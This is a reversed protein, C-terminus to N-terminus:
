TLWVTLMVTPALLTAIPISAAPYYAPGFRQTYAVGIGISILGVNFIFVDWLGAAKVLGSTQRLFVSPQTAQNEMALGRHIPLRLVPRGRHHRSVGAFPRNLLHLRSELM